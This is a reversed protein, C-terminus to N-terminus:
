LQDVCFTAFVHSSGSGVTVLLEGTGGVTAAGTAARQLLRKRSCLVRSRYPVRLMRDVSVPALTPWYDFHRYETQVSCRGILSQSPAGVGAGKRVRRQHMFPDVVGVGVIKKRGGM